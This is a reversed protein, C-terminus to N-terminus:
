QLFHQALVLMALETRNRVGTKALAHSVHKKVTDEGIFLAEAIQRNSYGLAVLKSVQAERSSLGPARRPQLLHDM